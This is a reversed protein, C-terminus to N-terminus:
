GPGRRERLEKLFEDPPVAMASIRIPGLAYNSSGVSASRPSMSVPRRWGGSITTADRSRCHPRGVRRARVGEQIFPLLVRYEEEHSHFFACIHFQPGLVSGGLRIPRSSETPINGRFNAKDDTPDM